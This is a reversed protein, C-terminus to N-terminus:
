NKQQKGFGGAGAIDDSVKDPKIRRCISWDGKLLIIEKGTTSNFSKSPEFLLTWFKGLLLTFTITEGNFDVLNGDHKEPYFSIDSIKGKNLKRIM